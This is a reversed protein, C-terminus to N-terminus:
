VSCLQCATKESSTSSQGPRSRHKWWNRHMYEPSAENNESVELDFDCMLLFQLAKEDEMPYVSVFTTLKEQQEPTLRQNQM